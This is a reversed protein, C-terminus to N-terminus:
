RGVFHLEAYRLPIYSLLSLIFCLQNGIDGGYDGIKVAIVGVYWTQVMGLVCGVIGLAFAMGGAYGVPMRSPDNWANLDYNKISGKRFWYHETFVIVFFATNWYGLLALFNELVNLLQDRGAIGLALIIGCVLFTWIFRPVVQLPRAFQQIALAASYIGIVNQGIGSLVLLVLLFKAFGLPYLITQILYGLGQDFAGSWQSNVQVTSAVCVGALMGICTPITIGFTTLLFIKLKSTDAPYQVYYDSVASCWSSSSGYIIGLLTLVTGSLTTGELPSPTYQAYHGAEGYIIM